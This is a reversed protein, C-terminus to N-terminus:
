YALVSLSRFVLPSHNYTPSALLFGRPNKIDTLIHNWEFLLKLWNDDHSNHRKNTNYCTMIPVTVQNSLRKFYILIYYTTLLFSYISNCVCQRPTNYTENMM